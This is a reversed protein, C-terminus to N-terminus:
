QESLTILEIVDGHIDYARLTKGDKYVMLCERRGGSWRQWQRCLYGDQVAWTGTDTRVREINHLVVAEGTMRGDSKWITKYEMGNFNRALVIKESLYATIEEASLRNGVLQDESARAMLPSVTFYYKEAVKAIEESSMDSVITDGLAYLTCKEGTRECFSM